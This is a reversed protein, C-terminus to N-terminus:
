RLVKLNDPGRNITDGALIVVADSVVKESGDDTLVAAKQLLDLLNKMCGHVDGIVLVRKNKVVHDDLTLHEVSHTTTSCLVISLLALFICSTIMSHMKGASCQVVVHGAFDVAIGITINLPLPTM